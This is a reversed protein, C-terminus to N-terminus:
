AGLPEPRKFNIGRLVLAPIEKEESAPVKGGTTAQSNMGCSEFSLCSLVATARDSPRAAAMNMKTITALFKM